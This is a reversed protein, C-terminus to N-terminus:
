AKKRITFILWTALAILAVGGIILLAILWERSLSGGYLYDKNALSAVSSVMIWVDLVSLVGSAVCAVIKKKM